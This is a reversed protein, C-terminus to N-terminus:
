PDATGLVATGTWSAQHRRQRTVRRDALRGGTVCRHTVGPRRVGERSATAALRRVSAATARAALAMSGVNETIGDHAAQVAELHSGIQTAAEQHGDVASEIVAQTRQVTSIDQSFRAMGELTRAAQTQM